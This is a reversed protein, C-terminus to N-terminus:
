GPTYATIVGSGGLREVCECLAAGCTGALGPRTVSLALRVPAPIRSLGGEVPLVHGANADTLGTQPRAPALCDIKVALLPSLASVTRRHVSVVVAPRALPCPSRYRVAARCPPVLTTALGVAAVGSAAIVINRRRM